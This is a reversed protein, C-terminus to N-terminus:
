KEKFRMVVSVTRESAMVAMLLMVGPPVVARPSPTEKASPMILAKGSPSGSSSQVM